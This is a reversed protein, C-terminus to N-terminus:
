TATGGNKPDTFRQGSVNLLEELKSHADQDNPNMRLAERYLAEADRYHAEAQEFQKQQQLLLGFNYHAEAFGSNASLAKSYAEKAEDFRQQVDFLIGLNNQSIADNPDALVARSYAQEAKKYLGQEFYLLGLENLAAVHREDIHVAEIFEKEAKSRNEAKLLTALYYHYSACEPNIRIASRYARKAAAIRGQTDLLVGLSFYADANKPDGRIAARYFKEAGQIDRLSELIRGLSYQASSCRPNARIALRYENEADKLKGVKDLLNGLSNHAEAYGPKILIANRFAREAEDDRGEDALLLGLSYHAIAYNPDALIADRYAKEAGDRRHQRRLLGGLNYFAEPRDFGLCIAKQYAIESEQFQGLHHLLLALSYASLGSGSQLGLTWANVAVKPRKRTFAALGIALYEAASGARSLALAWVEELMAHGKEELFESVYEGVLFGEEGTALDQRNLLASYRAVPKRAEALGEEFVNQDADEAPELDEFHGKFLRFLDDLPIPATLGARRWDDAARVIAVLSSSGHDYKQILERGAIFSEGLGQSLKLTPYISRARAEEQATMRDELKIVEARELIEQADRGLEDDMEKWRAFERSRMTAVIQLELEVVVERLVRVNLTRQSLFRELDNLWLVGSRLGLAKAEEVLRVLDEARNPIVIEKSPDIKRLTEYASRSKGAKSPGVLLVFAKHRQAEGLEEDIDRPVYPPDESQARYRDVFESKTVGLLDYCDVDSIKPLPYQLVLQALQSSAEGLVTPLAASTPVSCGGDILVERFKQDEFLQSVAQGWLLGNAATPTRIVVGILFDGAFIATGSYGAWGSPDRPLPQGPKIKLALEPPGKGSDPDVIAEINLKRTDTTSSDVFSPFGIARCEVKERLPVRGWQVPLLAKLSSDTQPFHLLAM